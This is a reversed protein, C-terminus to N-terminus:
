VGVRQVKVVEASQLKLVESSKENYCFVDKLHRFKSREFLNMDGKTVDAHWTVGVNHSKLV